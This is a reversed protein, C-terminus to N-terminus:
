PFNLSVCPPGRGGKGKGEGGKKGEGAKWEREGERGKRGKSTPGM